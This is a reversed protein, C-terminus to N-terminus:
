FAFYEEETITILDSLSSINQIVEEIDGIVIIKQEYLFTVKTHLFFEFANLALREYKKEHYSNNL